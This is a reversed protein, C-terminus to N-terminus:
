TRLQARLEAALEIVQRLVPQLEPGAQRMALESELLLGTLSANLENGLAAAAASRAKMQDHARRNLAARVQRIVRETSCIALNMELVPASGAAAYLADAAEPEAASLCEDLLILSFEQRRLLSLSAQCRRLCDVQGHFERRMAEGLPMAATEPAIVLFSAEM